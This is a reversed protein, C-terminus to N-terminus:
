ADYLVLARLLRLEGPTPAECWITRWFAVFNFRDNKGINNLNKPSMPYILGIQPNKKLKKGYRTTQGYVSFM